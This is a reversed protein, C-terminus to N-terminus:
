DGNDSPPPTAPVPQWPQSCVPVYPYFGSPSDCHYWYGPVATPEVNGPLASPYDDGNSYDPGYGYSYPYDYYLAGLGLGLGVGYGFGNFGHGGFHGGHGGFHGGGHSGFHGGGGDFHGAFGGGFHGGSNHGGAAQAEGALASVSLGFALLIATSKRM